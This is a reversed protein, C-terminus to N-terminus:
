ANGSRTPLANGRRKADWKAKRERQTAKRAEVDERTDNKEEYHLIQWGGDVPAVLGCAVLRAMDRAATKEGVWAGRLAESAVFGNREKARTWLLAWTWTAMAPGARHAREHDRLEVDVKAFIM